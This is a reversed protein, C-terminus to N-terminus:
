DGLSIERYWSGEVLDRFVTFCRNDETTVRFRMRVVPRGRLWEGDLQWLNEMSKIRTWQGSLKLRAIGQGDEEEMELAVSRRLNPASQNDFQNRVKTTM